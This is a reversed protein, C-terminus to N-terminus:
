VNTDVVVKAADKRRLALVYGHYRIAIPDGFPGKKLVEVVDGESLGMEYLRSAFEDPSPSVAASLAAARGIDGMHLVRGKQGVTLDALTPERVPDDVLPKM